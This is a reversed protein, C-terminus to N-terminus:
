TAVRKTRPPFLNLMIQKVALEREMLTVPWKDKSLKELEEHVADRLCLEVDNATSDTPQSRGLGANIARWINEHLTGNM